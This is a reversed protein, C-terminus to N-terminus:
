KKLPACAAELWTLLEADKIYQKINRFVSKHYEDIWKIEDKSMMDLDILEKEYPCMTLQKFKLFVDKTSTRTFKTDKEVAMANEIRIGYEGEKYYGPENTLTMGEELIGTKLPGVSANTTEHVCSCYGIGHGTGHKYDYGQEWLHQRALIDVHYGRSGSLFIAMALDVHGKLVRTYNKKMEESCKGVTITRTMDTTSGLYQGGVDILILGEPKITDSSNKSPTYHISAANSNYSVISAFSLDLFDKYEKKFELLKECVEWETIKRNNIEKKLWYIAKVVSVGDRVHADFMKEIEFKNKIAKIPLILSTGKKIKATSDINNFIWQSIENPDLLVKKNKSVKKLTKIFDKYPFIQLTQPLRSKYGSPLRKENIFWLVADHTLILYSIALPTFKIDMARINLLRAISELNSVVHLDINQEKMFKQVTEIKKSASTDEYKEDRIVVPTDPLSTQKQRIGDVLNEEIYKISVKKYSKLIDKLLENQSINILKPDLGITMISSNRIQEMMWTLELYLDFRHAIEKVRGEFPSDKLQQKVYIEFRADTWLVAKDMTVTINADEGKFDSLFKVENWFEPLYENQHQDTAPILYADIKHKKMLARLKKIKEDRM